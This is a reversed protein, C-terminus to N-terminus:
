RFDVATICRTPVFVGDKVCVEQKDFYRTCNCSMGGYDFCSGQCMERQQFELVFGATAVAELTFTAPCRWAYDDSDEKAADGVVWTDRQADLSFRHLRAQVITAGLEATASPWQAGNAPTLSVAHEGYDDYEGVYSVCGTSNCTSCTTYLAVPTSTGM